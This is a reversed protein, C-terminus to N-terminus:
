IGVVEIPYLMPSESGFLDEFTYDPLELARGGIAHKYKSFLQKLGYSEEHDYLIFQADQTDYRFGRPELGDNLLISLDYTANHFSKIHAPMSMFKTIAGLAKSRTCQKEGTLHGYAVYYGENLLPLWFSYGGSLDAFKDLGSTETDWATLSVVAPIEIGREALKRRIMTDNFLRFTERFWEHNRQLRVEERLRNIMRPLDEDNTIIHYNAPKNRITEEIRKQRAKEEEQAQVIRGLRLVEAKTWKAPANIRGSFYAKKALEYLEREKDSLKLRGIREFEERAKEEAQKRKEEAEKVRAEREKLEDLPDRLNLALGM